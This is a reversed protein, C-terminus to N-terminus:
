GNARNIEGISTTLRQQNVLEDSSAKPGASPADPLILGHRTKQVSKVLLTNKGYNKSSNNGQGSEQEIVLIKAIM